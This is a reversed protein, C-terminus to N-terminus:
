IRTVIDLFAYSQLCRHIIHYKTQDLETYALSPMRKFPKRKRFSTTLIFYSLQTQTLQLHEHVSGSIEMLPTKFINKRMERLATRVDM